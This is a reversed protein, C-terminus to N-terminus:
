KKMVLEDEASTSNSLKFVMDKFSKRKSSNKKQLRKKELYNQRDENLTGLQNKLKSLKINTNKVTTNFLIQVNNKDTNDYKYNKYEKELEEKKEKLCSMQKAIKQLIEVIEENIEKFKKDETEKLEKEVKKLESSREEEMQKIKTELEFINEKLESNLKKCEFITKFDIQKNSLSKIQSYESSMKNLVEEKSFKKIDLELVKKRFLGEAKLDILDFLKGIEKNLERDSKKLQLKLNALEIEDEAWPLKSKEPNRRFWSGSRKRRFSEGKKRNDKRSDQKNNFLSISRKRGKKDM